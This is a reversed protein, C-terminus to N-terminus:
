INTMMKRLSTTVPCSELNLLVGLATMVLKVSQSVMGDSELKEQVICLITKLKSSMAVAVVPLQVAITSSIFQVYRNM